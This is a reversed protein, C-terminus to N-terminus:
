SPKFCDAIAASMFAVSTEVTGILAQFSGIATAVLSREVTEVTGILAQFESRERDVPVLDRNRCYRHPSSVM